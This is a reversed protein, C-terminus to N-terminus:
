AETGLVVENPRAVQVGTVFEVALRFERNDKSYWLDMVESDNAMDVGAVINARSAAVISHTGNLGNVAVVKIATGPLVYEGDKYDPNFHYLNKEVLEQIFTRYDDEGVFIAMDEKAVVEAPISKYVNKIRDYISEDTQFTLKVVDNEAKLIKLLGDFEVRGEANDKDGQWVMKEVKANINKIIDEAFMEEFPLTETGAAVKVLYGAWTGLLNKECFAQNVKLYAPEIYRQSLTSSGKEEWGCAKGDGVEVSTDLLNIATKEKVDTQLNFMSISKAGLVAKAILPLRREEIYAPLSTVIPSNAM